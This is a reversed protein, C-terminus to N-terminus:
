SRRADRWYTTIHEMDKLQRWFIKRDAKPQEVLFANGTEASTYRSYSWEGFAAFEKEFCLHGKDDSSLSSFPSIEAVADPTWWIRAPGKMSLMEYLLTGHQPERLRHKAEEWDITRGARKMRDLFRAERKNDVLFAVAGYPYSLVALLLLLPLFVLCGLPGFNIAVWEGFNERVAPGSPKAPLLSPVAERSRRRVVYAVVFMAVYAPLFFYLVLELTSFM